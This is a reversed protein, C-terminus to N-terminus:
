EVAHNVAGIKAPMLLGEMYADDLRLPMPCATQRVPRFRRGVAIVHFLAIGSWPESLLRLALWDRRFSTFRPAHEVSSFITISGFRPLSRVSQLHM